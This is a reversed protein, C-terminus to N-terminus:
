RDKLTRQVNSGATCGCSRLRVQRWRYSLSTMVRAYACNMIVAVEGAVSDRSLMRGRTEIKMDVISSWKCHDRPIEDGLDLFQEMNM